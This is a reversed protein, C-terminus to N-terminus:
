VPKKREANYPPPILYKKEIDCNINIIHMKIDHLLLINLQFLNEIHLNKADGSSSTVSANDPLPTSKRIVCSISNRKGSINNLPAVKLIDGLDNSPLPANTCISNTGRATCAFGVPRIKNLFILLYSIISYYYESSFFEYLM